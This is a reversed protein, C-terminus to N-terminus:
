ILEFHQLDNFTNDATRWNDNWDGGWRLKVGVMAACLNVAGAFYAYERWERAVEKAREVPDESKPAAPRPFPVFHAAEACPQGKEDVTNHKSQGPKARSAGSDFAAQQATDGRWAEDISFDVHKILEDAVARMHPHMQSRNHLSHTSFVPVVNSGIM